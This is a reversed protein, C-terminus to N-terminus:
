PNGGGAASKARGAYDSYPPSAAQYIGQSEGPMPTRECRASCAYNYVEIGRFLSVRGTEAPAVNITTEFIRRGVGDLVSVSTRGYSRGLIMLHRRDTLSVDAISPNAVVVQGAQAGLTVPVAEDIHVSVGGGPAARALSPAALAVILLLRAPSMPVSRKAALTGLSHDVFISGLRAHNMKHITQIGFRQNQSLNGVRNLLM